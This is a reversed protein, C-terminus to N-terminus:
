PRLHECLARLAREAWISADNEGLSMVSTSYAFVNPETQGPTGDYETIVLNIFTTDLVDYIAARATHYM